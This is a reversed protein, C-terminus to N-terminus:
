TCVGMESELPLLSMVFARLDTLCWLPSLHVYGTTTVSVHDPDRFFRLNGTDNM